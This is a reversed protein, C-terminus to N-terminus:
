PRPSSTTVLLHSFHLLLLQVLASLASGLRVRVRRQARTGFQPESDQDFEPQARIRPPVGTKVWTDLPLVSLAPIILPPKHTGDLWGRQEEPHPGERVGSLQPSWFRWGLCGELQTKFWGEDQPM